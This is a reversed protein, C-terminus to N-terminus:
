VQLLEARRLELVLRSAGEGVLLGPGDGRLDRTDAHRGVARVAAVVRELHFGVRETGHAMVAEHEVSLRHGPHQVVEGGVRRIARGHLPLELSELRQVVLVERRQPAGIGEGRHGLRSTVSRMRGVRMIASAPSTHAGPSEACCRAMESLSRNANRQTALGCIAGSPRRAAYTSTVTFAFCSPYSVLRQSTAVSPSEGGRRMVLPGCSPAGRQDGSPEVSAKRRGLSPWVWSYRRDSAPPSACCSVSRGFPAPGAAQDGSPFVIAKVLVVVGSSRTLVSLFSSGFLSTRTMVSASNRASSSPYTSGPSCAWM